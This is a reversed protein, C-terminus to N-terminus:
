LTIAQEAPTPQANRTNIYAEIEAKVFAKHSAFTAHAGKDWGYQFQRGDSCEVRIIDGQRTAKTITVSM